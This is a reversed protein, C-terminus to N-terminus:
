SGQINQIIEDFIFYTKTIKVDIQHIEITVMALGPWVM